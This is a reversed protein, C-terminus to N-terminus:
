FRFYLFPNFSGDVLSATSLIFIGLLVVIEFYISKEGINKAMKLAINQVIPTAGILAMIIVMLYSKLYYIFEVSKLPYNGFGFMGGVYNVAETLDTANFLVFGVIVIVMLYIHGFGNLKKIKYIFDKNKVYGVVLKEAILLFAFYLGWLAFNWEAGHWLGTLFWVCCINLLWRGKSCRNGGLPIYVYDRFWLSLSMHWRRWFETVSKSIYPYNFNEMFRFGFIRGLGIAMDSYGSFDYYIHLTFAVAYLWLFLVSLDNSAKVVECLEGLTNAILVKKGLGLIFRRIGYAVDDIANSAKGMLCALSIGDREGLQEEIDSYRVIPGAILQPFMTIYTALRILRKQAEVKGHYVDIEYSLIQFTYFSIGIPLAIKFMSFETGVWRNVNELIFDTYKFYVFCGLHILIAGALILKSFTKNYFTEIWRGTVYGVIISVMMLLVYKPEGWAYFILSAILLIGNKLHKPVILYFILTLPLFYYLFTLSSFLM